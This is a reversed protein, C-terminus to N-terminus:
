VHIRVDLAPLECLVTCTRARAHTHTHRRDKGKRANAAARMLQRSASVDLLDMPDDSVGGEHIRVGGAAAGGRRGATKGGVTGPGRVSRVCVCVCVCTEDIVQGDTTQAHGLKARPHKKDTHTHTYM